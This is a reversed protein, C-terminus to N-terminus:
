WIVRQLHYDSCGSWVLEWSRWEVGRSHYRWDPLAIQVDSILKKYCSESNEVNNWVEFIMENTIKCRETIFLLITIHKYKCIIADQKASRLVILTATRTILIEQQSPHASSKRFKILKVIKSKLIFIICLDARGPADMIVSRQSVPLTLFKNPSTQVGTAKLSNILERYVSLIRAALM